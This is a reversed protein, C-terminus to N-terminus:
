KNCYSVALMTLAMMSIQVAMTYQVARQTIYTQQLAMHLTNVTAHKVVSCGARVMSVVAAKGKDYIALPPFIHAHRVM